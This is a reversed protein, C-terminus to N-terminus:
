RNLILNLNSWIIGGFVTVVTGLIGIGAVLRNREERNNAETMATFNLELKEVAATLRAVERSIVEM